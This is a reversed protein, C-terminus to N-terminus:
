ETAPKGVFLIPLTPTTSGGEPERTIATASVAGAPIAVDRLLAHGVSDPRFTVSPVPKGDIIFWLQYAQGVSPADLAAASLMMTRRARNLYAKIAPKAAGTAAMTVLEVSPDTLQAILSDRQAVARESATKASRALRWDHRASRLDSSLKAVLLLSAALAAGLWFPARSRRVPAAFPLPKTEHRIPAAGTVRAMVRDKLGPEPAVPTSFALSALADSAAALERRLAPDIALRAEFAAREAGSLLDLAYDEVLDRMPDM